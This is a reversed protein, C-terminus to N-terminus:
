VCHSQVNLLSCYLTFTVKTHVPFDFHLVRKTATTQFQVGLIELTQRHPAYFAVRHVPLTGLSFSELTSLSAKSDKHSCVRCFLFLLCCLLYGCRCISLRLFLLTDSWWPLGLMGLHAFNLVLGWLLLHESLGISLVCLIKRGWSPM